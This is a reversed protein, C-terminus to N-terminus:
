SLLLTQPNLVSAWFKEWRTKRHHTESHHLSLACHYMASDTLRLGAITLVSIKKATDLSVSIHDGTPNGGKVACYYVASDSLELVSITFKSSKRSTQLEVSFSSQAFDAKHEYSPKCTQLIYVPQGGPHKRYWHLCYDNLSTVYNSELDVQAGERKTVSPVIPKVSDGGTLSI